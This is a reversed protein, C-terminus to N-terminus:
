GMMFDPGGELSPDYPSPDNLPRMTQPLSRGLVRTRPFMPLPRISVAGHIDFFCQVTGLPGFPTMQPLVPEV